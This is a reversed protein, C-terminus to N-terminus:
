SAFGIKRSSGDNMKEDRCWQRIVELTPRNGSLVEEMTAKRVINDIEGGSLEYRSALDKSDEDTLWPLKSKWISMKAETSPQGFKIKFLFRRSFAKDLNESLNTTAILIGELKEIEELIINQIANETQAVHTSGVDKRKSFLADAENFLLIPKKDSKECMQKYDTFIKKIIKESEGFWMSKSGAIDVHYVSRGTVKAIMEATATKGTGPYGYFLAAVGKPMQKEALRQQLAVFQDEMMSNKLFDIEKSLTGDFFLERDPLKDAPILRSDDVRNGGCFLESDKELFLKMGKETLKISADSFFRAPLIEVLGKVVLGHSKNKLKMGVRFRQRPADYICSLVEDIDSTRDDENVFDDCVKYIITRDEVDPVIKKLQKVFRLSPYHKEENEVKEFLECTDIRRDRRTYIINEIGKCFAYRDVARTLKKVQLTKNGMISSEVSPRVSYNRGRRTMESEVLGIEELHEIDKRYRVFMINSVGIFNAISKMNVHMEDILQQSYLAVFLLAQTRTVNLYESFAKIQEEISKKESDQMEMEEDDDFGDFLSEVPKCQYENLFEQKSGELALSIATFSEIANFQTKTQKKM